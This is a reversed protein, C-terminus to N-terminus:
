ISIKSTGECGFANTVVVHYVGEQTVVLSPTNGGIPNGNHFWQYDLGGSTQLSYLTM